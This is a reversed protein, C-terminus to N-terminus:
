EMCIKEVAKALSQIEENEFKDIQFNWADAGDIVVASIVKVSWGAQPLFLDVNMTPPVVKNMHIALERVAMEVQRDTALNKRPHVPTLHVAYNGRYKGYEILLLKSQYKKMSADGSVYEPASTEKIVGAAKLQEVFTKDETVSEQAPQEVHISTDEEFFFKSSSM